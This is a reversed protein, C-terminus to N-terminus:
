IKQSSLIPGLGPRQVLIVRKYNRNGLAPLQYSKREGSWSGLKSISRVINKHALTRGTNEGRRIAINLTRPDYDILWVDGRGKGAGVMVQRSGKTISPGGSLPRVRRLSTNLEGPGNGVIAHKGNIVMQPTYVGRERMARAYGRQRADYSADGFKDKWGLYDWYTVSFNLAILDKRGTVTNLARMAPPCSSCGQSQYLEVVVPGSPKGSPEAAEAEEIVRPQQGCSILLPIFLLSLFRM